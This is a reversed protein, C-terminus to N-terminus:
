RNPAFYGASGVRGPARSRVCPCAGAATARRIPRVHLRARLAAAPEGACQQYDDALQDAEDPFYTEAAPRPRWGRRASERGVNAGLGITYISSAQGRANRPSCTRAAATRLGGPGDGAQNEDRGDTILVLM